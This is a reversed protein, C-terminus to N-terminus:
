CVVAPLPTGFREARSTLKPDAFKQLRLQKQEETTLVSMTISPKTVTPKVTETKKTETNKMTFAVDSVVSIPQSVIVPETNSKAKFSLNATDISTESLLLDENHLLSEDAKTLSADDDGGLIAEEDIEKVSPEKINETSESMLASELRQILENKNGVVSLGRSKLAAKLNAM